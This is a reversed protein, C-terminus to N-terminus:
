SIRVDFYRITPNESRFVGRAYDNCESSDDIIGRGVLVMVPRRRVVMVHDIDGGRIVEKGERVVV